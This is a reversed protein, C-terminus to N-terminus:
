LGAIKWNRINPIEIKTGPVQDKTGKKLGSKEPTFSM